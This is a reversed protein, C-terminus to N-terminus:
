LDIEDIQDLLSKAVVMKQIESAGEYIETIKADRFFREVSYSKSYGYAGHIQIALTTADMAVKSAFHKAMASYRTFPKKRDKLSSARYILMRAAQINTGMDAIYNQIMQQSSLPKGFQVREKSYKVSAELAAQAIGLAQSAIGLRGTDLATM